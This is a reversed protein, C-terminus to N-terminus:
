ARLGPVSQLAHEAALLLAFVIGLAAGVRRRTRGPRGTVLVITAALFCASRAIVLPVFSRIFAGTVNPALGAPHTHAVIHALAIVAWVSLAAWLLAFAITAVRLRRGSWLGLAFAAAPLVVALHPFAAKLGHVGFLQRVGHSLMGALQVAAVFGFLAAALRLRKRQDGGDDNDSKAPTPDPPV